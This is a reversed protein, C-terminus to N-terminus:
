EGVAAVVHFFLVLGTVVTLLVHVRRWRSFLTAKTVTLFRGVASPSEDGRGLRVVHRHLYRGYLGSAVEIGLLVGVALGVGEWEDVALLHPLTLGTGVLVFWQHAQLQYRRFRAPLPRSLRTRKALSYGLVGVVLLVVGGEVVGIYPAESAEGGLGWWDGIPGAGTERETDSGDAEEGGEEDETAEYHRNDDRGPARRGTDALM